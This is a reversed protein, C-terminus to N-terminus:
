KHNGRNITATYLVNPGDLLAISVEDNTLDEFVSAAPVTLELQGPEVLQLYLEKGAATYIGFRLSETIPKVRLVFAIMNLHDKKKYTVDIGWPTANNVKDIREKYADIMRQQDQIAKVLPVVFSSYCLGFTGADTEPVNVGDFIYGVKKAAEDVDQALLGTRRMETSSSFDIMPYKSLSGLKHEMLKKTNLNYVVPRLLLVFELGKVDDENINFKFRGDSYPSYSTYAHVTTTNANGIAIMDSQYTTALYGVATQNSNSVGHTCSAGVATNNNGSTNQKGAQYGISTNADGSTVNLLSEFGVGTNQDGTMVICAKAGIATNDDGTSAELADNGVATNRVGNQNVKLTEHGLATNENGGSLNINLADFGFATCNTGQVNLNNSYYSSNQAELDGITALVIMLFPRMGIRLSSTTRNKM